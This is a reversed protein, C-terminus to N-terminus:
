DEEATAVVEASTLLYKTVGNEMVEDVQNHLKFVVIDGEKFMSKIPVGHQNLYGRGVREVVAHTLNNKPKDAYMMIISGVRQEPPDVKRVLIQDRAPWYKM